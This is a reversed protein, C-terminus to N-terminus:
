LAYRFASEAIGGACVAHDGVLIPPGKGSCYDDRTGGGEPVSIAGDVGMAGDSSAAGDVASAGGDEPELLDLRSAGCAAHFALASAAFALGHATTLRPTTVTPEVYTGGGREFPEGTM